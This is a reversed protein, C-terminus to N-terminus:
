NAWEHYRQDNDFVERNWDGDLCKIIMKNEELSTGFQIKHSKSWLLFNELLMDNFERVTGPYEIVTRSLRNAFTFRDIKKLDKSLRVTVYNDDVYHLNFGDLEVVNTLDVIGNMYTTSLAGQPLKKSHITIGDNFKALLFEDKEISDKRIDVHDNFIVDKYYGWSGQSPLDLDNVIDSGCEDVILQMIINIIKRVAYKDYNTNNSLLNKLEVIQLNDIYSSYTELVYNVENSYDDFKKTSM